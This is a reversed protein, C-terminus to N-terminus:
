RQDGAAGHESQVPSSASMSASALGQSGAALALLPLAEDPCRRRAQHLRRAIANRVLPRGLTAARHHALSAVAAWGLLDVECRALLTSSSRGTPPLSTARRQQVRAFAAACSIFEQLASALAMPRDRQTDARAALLAHLFAQYTNRRTTLSSNLQPDLFAAHLKPRLARFLARVFAERRPPPARGDRPRRDRASVMRGRSLDPRLELTEANILWGCWPHLPRRCGDLVASSTIPEAIVDDSLEGDRYDIGLADSRRDEARLANGDLFYTARAKAMNRICGFTSQPQPEGSSHGSSSISSASRVQLTDDIIRMQMEPPFSSAKASSPASLIGGSVAAVPLFRALLAHEAAALHLSCLWASLVSGQPIGMRAVYYRGGSEVLHCFVHQRLLRLAAEGALGVALEKERFVCAQVSSLDRCEGDAGAMASAAAAVAGGAAGGACGKATAAVAQNAAQVHTVTRPALVCATPRFLTFRRHLSAGEPLLRLAFAISQFLRPQALTDFCGKLDSTRFALAELPAVQRREAVFVRWRAQADAMGLLSTAMASPLASHLSSLLPLLHVLSANISPQEISTDAPRLCRPLTAALNLNSITRFNGGGKPVLSLAAAGFERGDASLLTVVDELALPHLSSRKVQRCHLKASRKWYGKPWADVQYPEPHRVPSRGVFLRRATPLLVRSIIWTGLRRMKRRQAHHHAAGRGRSGRAFAGASTDSGSSACAKQSRTTRFRATSGAPIDIQKCTLAERLLTRMTARVMEKVNQHSGLLGEPLVTACVAWAFRKVESWEAGGGRTSSPREALHRRLLMHYSCRHHRALLRRLLKRLSRRSPLISEGARLTPSARSNPVNIPADAPSDNPALGGCKEDGAGAHYSVTRQDGAEDDATAAAQEPVTRQEARQKRRRWNSLRPRKRRPQADNGAEGVEAGRAESRSGHGMLSESTRKEVVKFNLGVVASTNKRAARSASNSYRIPAPGSIQLLNDNPLPWFLSTQTLLHHVAPAGARHRLLSLAPELASAAGFSDPVPADASCEDGALVVRPLEAGDPRHVRARRLLDYYDAPEHSMTRSPPPCALPFPIGYPYNDLNFTCVSERCYEVGRARSTTHRGLAM